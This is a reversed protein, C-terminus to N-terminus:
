REFTLTNFGAVPCAICISSRDRWRLFCYVSLPLLHVRIWSTVNCIRCCRLLSKFCFLILFYQHMIVRSKSINVHFILISNCRYRILSHVLFNIFISLKLTPSLFVSVSILFMSFAL